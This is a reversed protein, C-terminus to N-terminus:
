KALPDPRIQFHGLQSPTDKGGETLQSGRVQNAAWVGRGKWGAKADDIRGDLFRSFFGMPYPVRLRTWQKTEQQFALLSDSGAGDIVVVDNGLGLANFRDIWMYYNYDVQVTPDSKFAPGPVRHLTWGEPCHQGTTAAPGGKIACKRRDFSALDGEGTLPTWVVGKSDIDIGRTHSGHVGPMKPNDFPPEWFEAVCTEPPHAGRVMRVLKGPLSTTVSYWVSGDQANYAIGYAGSGPVARDLTPDVPEPAKTYAGIKGDGNVDMIAPCWGQSKEANHTEDWLRTNLWGIGGDQQISVFLTNDKDDAFVVRTARMCLDIFEFKGTKPDYVDVGKGGFEKPANKAFANNAGAGCYTANDLRTESLFWVRGKQDMTVPGPNVPDNWPLEDGFFPSPFVQTQPSHKDMRARDAENPLPVKVLTHKHELPDIVAIAGASWDTGFVPGRANVSPDRKDTSISAHLFAAPVSWDWVTLVINREIGAPRPPAPPVEGKAIRDGWDAFMELGKDHGFRNVSNLMGRGVQGGGIFQWWAEKSPTVKALSAPIERTSKTGMQHCTECGGKLYMLWQAQTRIVSPGTLDASAEPNGHTAKAPKNVGPLPPPAPINMPFDSKTPITLLSLWSDAPYYEAAARPSPAVVAALPLQQGPAAEVPRSDVLGYGRVWVRYKARPLDPIVYRGRDDTVVIRRFKAPLDMTEAIVWVGAEPGAASTVIGGIDDPDIAPSAATQAAGQASTVQQRAALLIVIGTLCACAVFSIRRIWGENM